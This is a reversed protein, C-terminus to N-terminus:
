LDKMKRIGYEDAEITKEQTVITYELANNLDIAMDIAKDILPKSDIEAVAVGAKGLAEIMASLLSTSTTLLEQKTM